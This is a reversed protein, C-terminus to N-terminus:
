QKGISRVKANLVYGFIQLLISMKYLAYNMAVVFQPKYITIQICHCLTISHTSSKHQVPSMQQRDGPTPTWANGWGGLTKADSDGLFVFCSCISLSCHLYSICCSWSWYHSDMEWPWHTGGAASVCCNAQVCGEQLVALPGQVRKASFLYLLLSTLWTGHSVYVEASCLLMCQTQFLFLCEWALHCAWCQSHPSKIEQYSLTGPGLVMKTCSFPSQFVTHM